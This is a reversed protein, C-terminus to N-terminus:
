NEFKGKRRVNHKAFCLLAFLILSALSICCGVYFANNVYRLTITHEGESLLVGVMAGGVTVSEAKEGDVYVQWNGNQPISTYLLGSRNCNISGRVYTNSFEELQLTSTALVNYGKRFIEDNMIASQVSISGTESSLCNFKIQVVDGESVDSVALMQPISYSDSYLRVGNKWVSFSNKKSLNLYVCMFGEKPISYTYVIEGSNGDHLHYYCYGSLNQPDSHEEYGSIILDHGPIFTWVDDSVGTSASFLKNQFTFPSNEAQFDINIMQHNALFGLPLYANNELLHVDGSSYVSDFYSNDAVPGDREIMYKLGLYLNSVPSSEEYCYRNYSRKAGYGLSNMFQTINANASSTFTSIGSYGILAGDNLTQSHTTETRYFLNDAERDKMFAVVNETDTTGNPYNSISAGAFNVGFNALNLVLELFMILSLLISITRKPYLFECSVPTQETADTRRQSALFLLFYLTIFIINYIWFTISNAGWGFILITISANLAVIAHWPKFSDLLTYARYSMYLMVFSYLFSFRYPIMNTFHFGHWIYDLQRIIFSIVFFLLLVICCLKDALKVKKNCLFFVSLMITGVGCYLNPLGEKFTPIHGGNMNGAVQRMASLLGRITNEDAINLRFQKPFTNVSSHTTQLAALAPLELVATMGIALVSCGAIWLLDAMFKSFNEWRSIEYCIFVLLVFFCTFLGIYYNAFISLFLTATYLIFRRQSLLRIVGLAVLPLLAFTDLWMINWQYGLAWACLAYFSAFLAITPDNRRFIKNLFTAFFLGALGLKIPVLLSFYGMMWSEPLLISILNLPSALYYSILGIYDMGLGVNWSYLLSDGSLLARRYELFFPYYQHYMDSYLISGQGFPAAGSILMVVIFGVCPILFSLLLYIWKKLSFSSLKM